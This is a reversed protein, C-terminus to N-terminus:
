PGPSLTTEADTRRMRLLQNSIEQAAEYIQPSYTRQWVTQLSIGPRCLGAHECGVWARLSDAGCQGTLQCSAMQAALSQATRLSQRAQNGSFLSEGLDIRAGRNLLFDMTMELAEGSRTKSLLDGAITMAAPLDTEALEILGSARYVDDTHPLADADREIVERPEVIAGDCFRGLFALQAQKSPDNRFEDPNKALRKRDLQLAIGCTFRAVRRQSLGEPTQQWYPDGVKTLLDAYSSVQGPHRTGTGTDLADSGSHSPPSPNAPVAPEHEPATTNGAASAAMSGNGAESKEEAMQAPGAWWHALGGLLLAAVAFALLVRM